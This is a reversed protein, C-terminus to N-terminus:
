PAPRVAVESSEVRDRGNAKARYLAADASALLHEIGPMETEPSFSFGISVTLEVLRGDNLSIPAGSVAERIREAIHIADPKSHLPIVAAFEEGGLRGFADGPRLCARVRQSFAVLVEDGAAHGYNDNVAKFHDLDIMLVAIPTNGHALERASEHFANRNATGTLQDHTALHHLRSLLEERSQMVIALMIPGLAILSAALRVSILATEDFPSQPGPLYTVSIIVLSWLGFLLTLVATPFVLYALGCWLLAPVPFAIAGPGGIIAGVAGSLLLALAPLAIRPSILPQTERWKSLMAELPPASLIVPLIAVYNVFETAFWFTWGAVVGGGFLIPNAFGGVIGATAAGVASVLAINLLSTPHELRLKAKPLRFCIAYASAIGAINAGNLLLAKVLTSGTLLDAAMYATGAALWGPLSAMAPRRLLLGLMIANAPWVNALFGLPRTYIGFLCASLVVAALILPESLAVSRRGAKGDILSRLSEFM